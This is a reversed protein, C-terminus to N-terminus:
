NTLVSLCIMHFHACLWTFQYSVLQRIASRHVNMTLYDPSDGLFLVIGHLGSDQTEELAIILNATSELM